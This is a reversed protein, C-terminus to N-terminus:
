GLALAIAPDALFSAVSALVRSGLAGDVCRHDFSLTLEMVQRPVVAGDVVWPRPLVRGMALIASEGPNIIPTGGDVGFVGVNTITITGGLMAAPETRGERATASLEHLATALEVLSLRDAGKINPVVLGRPTAAAVGLNVYHKIVLEGADGDFTANIGPSERVARLLAVAVLTLPTVKIGELEPRTRLSAVLDMSRTVDVDVWETVHPATFASRVMAEAMTRLVGRVPIREDAPGDYAARAGFAGAAAPAAPGAPAAPAAHPVLRAAREVDDRTIHGGPGTPSVAQLDVGLDRALRRVPPKAQVPGSTAFKSELTRGIELGGLRVPRGPEGSPGVEPAPAGSPTALPVRARRRPAGTSEKVGYGVLVAHVEPAAPASPTSTQRTGGTDDSGSQDNGPGPLSGEPLSAPVAPATGGVDVTIIPTGVPVIDGEAVHLVAVTGAFPSPLEVAAKATEIEVLMENVVVVDGPKVLWRLIEAETLGEGVDPLRFEKNEGM